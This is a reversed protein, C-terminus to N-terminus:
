EILYNWQKKGFLVHIGGLKQDIFLRPIAKNDMPQSYLQAQNKISWKKRNKRYKCVWLLYTVQKRDKKMIFVRTDSLHGIYFMVQYRVNLNGREEIWKKLNRGYQYEDVVSDLIKQRKPKTLHFILGKNTVIIFDYIGPFINHFEYGTKTLGARFFAGLQYHIGFVSIINKRLNPSFNGQLYPFQKTPLAINENIILSKAYYNKRKQGLNQKTPFVFSREKNNKIIRIRWRARGWYRQGKRTTIMLIHRKVVIEKKSSWELNQELSEHLLKVSYIQKVRIKVDKNQFIDKIRLLRAEITGEYTKGNELTIKGEVGYLSLSLMMSIILAIYKTKLM